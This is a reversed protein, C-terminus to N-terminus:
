AESSSGAGVKTKKAVVRVAFIAANGRKVADLALAYAKQATPDFTELFARVGVDQDLGCGLMGEGQALEAMKPVVCYFELTSDNLDVLTERLSAVGGENLTAVTPTHGKDDDKLADILSEAIGVAPTSSDAGGYIKKVCKRSLRLALNRLTELVDITLMCAADLWCECVTGGPTDERKMKTKDPLMLMNGLPIVNEMILELTARENVGFPAAFFALPAIVTPGDVTLISKARSPLARIDPIFSLTTMVAYCAGSRKTQIEQYTNIGASVLPGGKYGAGLLETLPADPDEKRQLLAYKADNLLPTSKTGTKSELGVKTFHFCLCPAIRTGDDSLLLPEESTAFKPLYTAAAAAYDDKAAALRATVKAFDASVESDPCAPKSFVTCNFGGSLLLAEGSTLRVKEIANKVGEHPAENSAKSTVKFEDCKTYANGNYVDLKVEKMQITAGPKIEGVTQERVGKAGKLNTLSVQFIGATPKMTPFVSTNILKAYVPSGDLTTVKEEKALVLATMAGARLVDKGATPSIDTIAVTIKVTTPGKDNSKVSVGLVVGSVTSKPAGIPQALLKGEPVEVAVNKTETSADGKASSAKKIPKATTAPAFDDDSDSEDDMVVPVSIPKKDDETAKARKDPGTPEKLKAKDGGTSPSAPRKSGGKSRPDPSILKTTQKTSM